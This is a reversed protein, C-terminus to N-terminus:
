EPQPRKVGPQMAKGLAVDLGRVTLKAILVGGVNRTELLAVEALWALDTRVQANSVSHGQDELAAELTFENVQYGASESLLRLVVLRRDAALHEKFSQTM